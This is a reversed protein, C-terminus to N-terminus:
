FSHIEDNKLINTFLLQISEGSSEMEAVKGIIRFSKIHRTDVKLSLRPNIADM